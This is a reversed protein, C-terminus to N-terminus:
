KRSKKHKRRGGKRRRRHTKRGSGTKRKYEQDRQLNHMDMEQDLRLRQREKHNINEQENYYHGPQATGERGTPLSTYMGPSPTSVWSKGLGGHLHPRSFKRSHTKKHSKRM